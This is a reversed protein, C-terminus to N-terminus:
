GTALEVLEDFEEDNYGGSYTLLSDKLLLYEASPPLYDLPHNEIWAQVVLAPASTKRYIRGLGHRVSVRQCTSIAQNSRPNKLNYTFAGIISAKTTM